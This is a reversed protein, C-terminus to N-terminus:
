NLEVNKLNYTYYKNSYDRLVLLESNFVVYKPYLDLNDFTLSTVLNDKISILYYKGYNDRTIVKNSNLTRLFALENTFEIKEKNGKENLYVFTSKKDHIIDIVVYEDLLGIEFIVEGKVNTTYLNETKKSKLDYKKVNQANDSYCIYYIANDNILVKELDLLQENDGDIELMTTVSNDDIKSISYRENGNNLDFSIFYFQNNYIYFSPAILADNILGEKLIKQNNLQKNSKILSWKILDGEYDIIVFYISDNKIVYDLIQKNNNNKIIETKETIFNYIILDSTEGLDSNSFDNLSLYLKETDTRHTYLSKGNLDMNENNLNLLNYDQIKYEQTTYDILKTKKHKYNPICFIIAVALLITISLLIIIRKVM